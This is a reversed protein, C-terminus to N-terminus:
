KPAASPVIRSAFREGHPMLLAALQERGSKMVEVQCRHVDQKEILSGTDTGCIRNATARVRRAFVRRGADSALNLDAYVVRGTVTARDQATASTDIMVLCGVVTAAVAVNSLCNM